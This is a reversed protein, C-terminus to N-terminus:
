RKAPRIEDASILGSALALAVAHTRSSAGLSYAAYRIRLNVAAATCGIRHAIQSSTLGNAAYVLAELQPGTLTARPATPATM